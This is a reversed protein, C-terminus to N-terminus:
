IQGPDARKVPVEEGLRAAHWDGALPVVSRQDIMRIRIEEVRRLVRRANGPGREVVLRVVGAKLSRFGLPIRAVHEAVGQGDARWTGLVPTRSRWECECECECNERPVKPNSRGVVTQLRRPGWARDTGRNLRQRSRAGHNEGSRPLRPPWGQRRRG